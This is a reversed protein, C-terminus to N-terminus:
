EEPAVPEPEHLAAQLQGLVEDLREPSVDDAQWQLNIDDGEKRPLVNILFHAHHQGAAIGNQILLNTGQAGVGEFVAVSLANAIAFAEGLEQDPVQELISHHQRTTVLMHGVISPTPHLLAVIRGNDFVAGRKSEILQCIDCNM